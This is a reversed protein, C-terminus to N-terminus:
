KNDFRGIWWTGDRRLVGYELTRPIWTDDDYHARHFHFTGPDDAAVREMRRYLKGQESWGRNLERRQPFLNIDLEGGSAHSLFHGRDVPFAEDGMVKKVGVSVDPFRRIRNEDRPYDQHSSIGYATLVREHTRDFWYVASVLNIELLEAHPSGDTYEDCWRDVDEEFTRLAPPPRRGVSEFIGFLYSRPTRNPSVVVLRHLDRSSESTHAKTLDSAGSNSVGGLGGVRSDGEKMPLWRGMSRALVPASESREASPGGDIGARISRLTRPKRDASPSIMPVM